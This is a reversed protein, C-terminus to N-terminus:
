QFSLLVAHCTLSKILSADAEDRQNKTAHDLFTIQGPEMRLLSM